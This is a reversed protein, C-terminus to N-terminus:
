AAEVDDLDPVSMDAALPAASAGRPTLAVVRRPTGRRSGLLLTEVLGAAELAQVYSELAAPRVEVTIALRRPSQAGKVALQDLIERARSGGIDVARWGKARTAELEESERGHLTGRLDRVYPLRELHDICFPKHETTSRGCGLVQCVDRRPSLRSGEARSPRHDLLPAATRSRSM